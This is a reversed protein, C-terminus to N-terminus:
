NMPGHARARASRTWSRPQVSGTCIGTVSPSHRSHIARGITPSQRTRQILGRLLGRVLTTKGAGLEGRLAILGPGVVQALAAGLALTAAEDALDFERQALSSLM